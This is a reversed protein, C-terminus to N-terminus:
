TETELATLRVRENLRALSGRWNERLAAGAGAQDDGELCAIVEDHERASTEAALAGYFYHIEVRRLRLKLTDVIRLVEQNGCAEIAIQHFRHDGEHAAVADDRRLGERLYENAERLRAIRARDFSPTETVALEELVGVVPYIQAAEDLNVATVRTWRNAWTEVLGEDELRRLAERVPTRSVSMAEALDTDRLRQGPQLQDTIIQDRLHRYIDERL